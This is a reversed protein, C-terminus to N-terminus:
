WVEAVQEEVEDRPAEFVAAAASPPEPLAARDLKGNVTRPLAELVVVAAPVMADPLRAALHERLAAGDLGGQRPVAYALLRLPGAPGPRAVVAAAAVEPHGLLAAEVEAPEVRFGQIKVQDDRRGLYVLRGAEDSRVRDGSRYLREGPLGSFADPVFRWATEAPRGHYGRAEGSGGIWLEGPVGPLAPGGWRDVVALRAGAAARGLPVGAAAAEADAEAADCTAVGVTTETPGYHNHVACRPALARLAALLDGSFREGGVVLHRAPLLEAAEPSDLLARLHSPVVKMVDIRHRRVYDALEAAGGATRYPVLHLCGGSELAPFVMTHGLDAAATTPLAWAWAPGLGDGVGVLDRRVFRSYAALSGHRVAVAKPEGTSGSTFVLYALHDADLRRAPAEAPEDALTPDDLDVWPGGCAAAAPRTAAAVVVPAGGLARLQRALREPPHEADLPAYAGGAKLVGLVAVLLRPSREVCVAVPRDPGVGMRRLRHALRNAAADLEGYTLASEGAAVAAREPAEAARAEFRDVFTDAEGAAAPSAGALLSRPGAAAGPLAGLPRDADAAAAVIAPLTEALADAAAAALREPAFDIWGRWGDATGIVTLQAAVPQGIALAEALAVEGAPAAALAQFALAPAPAAADLAAEPDFVEQRRRAEAVRGALGTAHERFSTAAGADVPVPLLRALPGAVAELGAHGRGDCGVAVRVGATEAARLWPLTWAALLADDPAVGAAAAAAEVTGAAFTVPRRELAAGAAPPALPLGDEGAARQAATGRAAAAEPSALLECLVDAVDAYQPAEGGGAALERGLARARM